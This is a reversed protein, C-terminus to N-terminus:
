GPDNQIYRLVTLEMKNFSVDRFINELEMGVGANFLFLM